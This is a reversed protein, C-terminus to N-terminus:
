RAAAHRTRRAGRRAAASPAAPRSRRDVAAAARRRSQHGCRGRPTQHAQAARSRRALLPAHQWDHADASDPGSARVEPADASADGADTRGHQHFVPGGDCTADIWIYTNIRTTDVQAITDQVDTIVGNSRTVTPNSTARSPRSLASLAITRATRTRPSGFFCCFFASRYPMM